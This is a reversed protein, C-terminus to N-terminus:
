FDRRCFIMGGLALLVIEFAVSTGMVWSVSRSRVIEVANRQIQQMDPTFEDSEVQLQVNTNGNNPLDPLEALDILWRELLAITETTKPLVTKVGFTINHAVDFKRQTESTEELEERQRELRLQLSTARGASTDDDAQDLREIRRENAAIRRELNAIKQEGGLKLTLVASETAHMAFILFWVLLTLLLSAIASRTLLGLLVCISFLYSFFVVMIPVALLIGPEWAGGKMGLVLFSAVSFVAVQLTVFLLGTCYKTLFLRLRSIPKSLVLDISGGTILDPFIGATSVLALITALWALWFGIGFNVFLIKYFTEESMLTTNLPFPVDWVILRLGNENIGILGFAVVVVGSLILTIWFLKRSNLERYADLFIALTQTM